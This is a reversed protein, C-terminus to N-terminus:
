ASQMMLTVFRTRMLIAFALLHVGALTAPLRDDDRALRRFRAAWAFSREVVWRRPLLGVGKKAEPRKVVELHMGHAAAEPLPQAGPYGQDVVAVEISEGTVEQVQATWPEVQTRDQEHAPPVHWALLHGLTAVAMPGQSGRKRKAGEAGARHGSAPTSPLTRRDLLTASPPAPRGDALRLRVRWAHVIADFVGAKLWRHPQQYVAEWPPLDNPLMRGPAGARAIWRLGTFVERWPHSRPPADDTM